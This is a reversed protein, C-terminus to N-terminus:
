DVEGACPFGGLGGRRPAPGSVRLAARFWIPQANTGCGAGRAQGRGYQHRFRQPLHGRYEDVVEAKIRKWKGRRWKYHVVLYAHGTTLLLPAPEVELRQRFEIPLVVITPPGKELICVSSTSFSSGRTPLCGTERVADCAERSAVSWLAKYDPPTLSCGCFTVVLILALAVLAPAFQAGNM